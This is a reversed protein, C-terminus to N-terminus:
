VVRPRTESRNSPSTSTDSLAELFGPLVEQWDGVVGYSAMSFIPADPDNNIAVIVRSSSCGTMHQTAGSIGVALYLDPAVTKGTLGIQLMPEVWGFDCPPRSAALAGALRDAVTRLLQFPEPGGMGRGGAVIVRARELDPGATRQHEHATITTKLTRADLRSAFPVPEASPAAVPEAAAFAGKRPLVIWPRGTLRLTAM